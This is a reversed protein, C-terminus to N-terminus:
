LFYLEPDKRPRRAARADARKRRFLEALEGEEELQPGMEQELRDPDEGAELRGLIEEMRSGPELGAAESFRRLLSAMQRPDESEGAAEAEAMVSELAGSLREEDVGSLLEDEEAGSGSASRLTAFTAPKRALPVRCQPCPPSTDTDVRPSFFNFLTHCAGCYFEYIPM